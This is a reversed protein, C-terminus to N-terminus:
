DALRQNLPDKLDASSLSKGVVHKGGPISLAWGLFRESALVKLQHRDTGM